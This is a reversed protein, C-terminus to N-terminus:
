NKNHNIILIFIYQGNNDALYIKQLSKRKVTKQNGFVIRQERM